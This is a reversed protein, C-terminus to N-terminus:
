PHEEHDHRSQPASTPRVQPHRAITPSRGDTMREWPEVDGDVVIFMPHQRIDPDDALREAREPSRVRLKQLLHDREYGLQGATVRLRLTADPSAVIRTRDFRYSRADAELALGHLYTAIAHDDARFRELQPHHRYGVTAGSLAKQALLAERWCAVLGAADLYQPHLSWLRM